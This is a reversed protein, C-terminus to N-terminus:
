IHILSLNYDETDNNEIETQVLYGQNDLRNFDLIEVQDIHYRLKLSFDIQNSIIYSGSLVNTIMYTNRLSFIPQPTQMNSISLDDLYGIENYRNRLSLVYNMSARDNFRIRPSIRARYEKGSYLPKFTAGCGFDLAFRNRYDSSMYIGYRISKSRKLPNEFDNTRAEYYDDRDRICM